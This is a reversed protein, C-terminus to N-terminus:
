SYEIWLLPYKFFPSTQHCNTTKLLNLHYKCHFRLLHCHRRFYNQYHLSSSVKLFQNFFSTSSSLPLVLTHIKHFGNTFIFIRSSFEDEYIILWMLVPKRFNFNSLIFIIWNLKFEIYSDFFNLKIRDNKTMHTLFTFGNLALTVRMYFGTLQNATCILQTTETHPCCQCKISQNFCSTSSSKSTQM